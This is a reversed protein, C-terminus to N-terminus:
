LGGFRMDLGASFALSGIAAPDLVVGQAFLHLGSLLPEDPIAFPVQFGSPPLAVPVNVLPQVLLTCGLIPLAIANVGFLLVGSSPGSASNGLSLTPSSGVFPDHTLRLDPVGLTGACGNGYTLAAAHAPPSWIAVGWPRDTDTRRLVLSPPSTTLDITTVDGDPGDTVVTARTGDLSIAIPHLPWTFHM